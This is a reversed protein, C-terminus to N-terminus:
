RSYEALLDRIEQKSITGSKLIAALEDKTIPYDKLLLRLQAADVPFATLPSLWFKETAEHSELAVGEVNVYVKYRVFGEPFAQDKYLSTGEPLLYQHKDSGAGNLLLPFKLKHVLPMRSEKTIRYTGMAGVALSVLAVGVLQLWRRSNGAM